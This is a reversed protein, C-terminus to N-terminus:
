RLAPTASDGATEPRTTALFRRMLRALDEPREEQPMHGCRDLVVVEATPLAAAFREADAVPLWRDERGWVVLSPARVRGLLADFGGATPDPQRALAVVAEAAGPRLSPATYEDLRERTVHSPDFFATRLSRETALRVIPLRAALTAGPLALLRLLPPRDASGLHFGASDILVLRDVREPQAAALWVSTAGGLSNGALSARQIDLRDMLGLVARPLADASVRAPIGSGGFGPLDLAVVDHQEALSPLVDKWTYISSGFGHILVLAPGSGSRVYRIPLGDITEVRPALGARTLWAGTQPVPEPVFSLAVLALALLGTGIAFRRLIPKM